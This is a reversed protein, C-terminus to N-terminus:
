IGPVVANGYAVAGNRAPLVCTSLAQVAESDTEALEYGGVDWGGDDAQQSVLWDCAAHATDLHGIAILGLAGYATVQEDGEGIDDGPIAGDDMQRDELASAARDIIDLHGLVDSEALGFLLSALGIEHNAASEDFPDVITQEEVQEVLVSAIEDAATTNKIDQAARVFLAVDWLGLNEHGQNVRSQLIAEALATPTDEWRDDEIARQFAEEALAYRDPDQTLVALEALFYQNPGSSFADPNDAMYDALWDANDAAADLYAQDLSVKYADLLGQATVGQVNQYKGDAGVIWPFAGDEFQVELLRDAGDIAADRQDIVSATAAPALMAIAVTVTVLPRITM